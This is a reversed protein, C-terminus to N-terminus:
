PRSKCQLKGALSYVRLSARELSRFMKCTLTAFSNGFNGMAVMQGCGLKAAQRVFYATSIERWYRKARLTWTNVSLPPFSKGSLWITQPILPSWNVYTAMTCSKWEAYVDTEI